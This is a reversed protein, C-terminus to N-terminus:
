LNASPTAAAAKKREARLMVNRKNNAALREKNAFYYSRQYEKYKEPHKARWEMACTIHKARWETSCAAQKAARADFMALREADADTLSM